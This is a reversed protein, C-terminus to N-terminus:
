FSLKFSITVEELDEEKIMKAGAMQSLPRKLSLIGGPIELHPKLEESMMIDVEQKLFESDVLNDPIEPEVKVPEAKVGLPPKSGYIEEYKNSWDLPLQPLELVQGNQVDEKEKALTQREESDWFRALMVEESSSAMRTSEQQLLLHYKALM